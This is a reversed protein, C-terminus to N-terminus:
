SKPVLAYWMLLFGLTCAVVAVGITGMAMPSLKQSGQRSIRQVFSTALLPAAAILTVTNSAGLSLAVAPPITFLLMLLLGRM